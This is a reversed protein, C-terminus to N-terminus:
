AFDILLKCFIIFFWGYILEKFNDNTLNNIKSKWNVDLENFECIAM